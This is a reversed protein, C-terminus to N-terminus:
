RWGTVYAMWFTGNAIRDRRRLGRRWGEPYVEVERFGAELLVEKLEPLSWHRYDYTFARRYPPRGRVQFHLHFLTENGEPDYSEQELVYTFSPVKTGDFAVGAPVRRKITGTRLVDTGGTADLVLLGDPKLGRRANEFYRRLVVRDKFCSYSTNLALVAQVQPGRWDLVNGCELSLREAARGLSPLHHSRGWELVAADLDLGWGRHRRNRRVWEATILATGCFDERITQLLHGHRQEYASQVFRLDEAPNQVAASYLHHRDPVILKAM